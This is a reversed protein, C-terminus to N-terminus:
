IFQRIKFLLYDYHNKAEQSKAKRSAKELLEKTELLFGYWVHTKDPRSLERKTAAEKYYYTGRVGSWSLLNEVYTNRQFKQLDTPALGKEAGKWIHEAVDMLAEEQTYPSESRVESLWMADIQIFIFNTFYKQCFEGTHGRLSSSALLEDNDLFDLDDIRELAWKLHRKQVDKPVSVYTSHADKGYKPNLYIGGVNVFVQKIYEYAQLVVAEQLGQRFNYDADDKDICQNLQSLVAALGEFGKEVSLVADNGLDFSMSRPDYFNTPSQRKGYFPIANVDTEGGYLWSLVKYDYEGLREQIMVAGDEVDASSYAVFNFPLEDMVSSSVGHKGTFDASRLSDVSFAFSGAMNDALGLCHGIHRLLMSKLATGFLATDISMSRSSPNGAGTQLILNKKIGEAVGHNVVIGAGLIEGTVPDAWKSDVIKEAPSLNYRICNYRIDSPNFDSSDACPYPQVALASKFGANDFAKNWEEVSEIIYPVWSEPFSNDVYFKVPDKVVGASDVEMRWKTAYSKGTSAVKDPDYEDLKVSGTGVKVSSKVPTMGEQPLLVFTRRMQSTFISQDDAAFVGLFAAKVKYSNSVSVSFSNEGVRIDKLVSTSSVHSGTRKVYGEAANFAKPDIPNLAQDNSVFYSTVDILCATSDASYELIKFTKIISSINSQIVNGTSGSVYSENLRCLQLSSPTKEFCVTYPMVPQYGVNSELPDSCAEVMAGMLLRKGLLEMPMELYVKGDAEYMGVLGHHSVVKKNEFEKYPNSYSAVSLLLLVISFLIRKTCM